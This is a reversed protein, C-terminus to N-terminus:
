IMLSQKNKYKAVMVRVGSFIMLLEGFIVVVVLRVCNTQIFLEHRSVTACLTPMHQHNKKKSEDITSVDKCM